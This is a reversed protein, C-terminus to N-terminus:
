LSGEPLRSAIDASVKGDGCGIDLVRENGKIDLKALLERAWKEQESSDKHYYEAQWQYM